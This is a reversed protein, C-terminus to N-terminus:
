SSLIKIIQSIVSRNLFLLLLGLFHPSLVLLLLSLLLLLVLVLLLLHHPLLHILHVHLERLVHNSCNLDLISEENSVTKSSLILFKYNGILNCVDDVASSLLHWVVPLASADYVKGELPEVKLVLDDEICLICGSLGDKIKDFVSYFLVLRHKDM